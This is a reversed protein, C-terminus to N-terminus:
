QFSSLVDDLRRRKKSSLHSASRKIGREVVGAGELRETTETRSPSEDEDGVQNSSPVKIRIFALDDGGRMKDSHQVFREASLPVYISKYTGVISSSELCSHTPGLRLSVVPMSNILEGSITAQDGTEIGANRLDIDNRLEGIKALSTYNQFDRAESTNHFLILKKILKRQKRQEVKIDINVQSEPGPNIGSVSKDSPKKKPTPKPTVLIESVKSRPIRDVIACDPLPQACLRLVPKSDLGLKRRMLMAREVCATELLGLVDSDWTSKWNPLKNRPTASIAVNCGKVDFIALAPFIDIYELSKATVDQHNWLRLIRLVPFAGQEKVALHWARILRDSVGTSTQPQPAVIDLVALNTVSSLKVLEPITFPATLSLSTLFELNKSTLPKAYVDLPSKVTQISAPYRLLDLTSRSDKALLKSFM